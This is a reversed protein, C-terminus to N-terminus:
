QEYKAKLGYANIKSILSSRSINLRKASESKNWNTRNLERLIMDKELTQVAEDLTGNLQPTERTSRESIRPALMEATIFLEDPYFILLREIENKLERVNGRWSYNVLMDLAEATLSKKAFGKENCLNDLFHKALVPIDERREKLPPLEITVVNLRYYLDERFKETEILKPLDRNTAAIIRVNTHEEKLSGVPSYTGDQIVRLLKAQLSPSMEAVEDLFLAGTDAAAFIGKRDEIAGTFAGKIYGFLESELLTENFAACNRIIFPKDARLSNYHIAKAILEKGTGSQGLILVPSDVKIIRQVAEIVPVMKPSNTVLEKLSYKASLDGILQRNFNHSFKLEQYLRKLRLVAKIRSIVEDPRYPKTIYDDAGEDLGKTLDDLEARATVFLVPIYRLQSDAKFRRLVELGSLRPMNIDLVILDLDKARATDLAIQGDSATIVKFGHANLLTQLSTLQDHDDDAILITTDLSQTHHAGSCRYM